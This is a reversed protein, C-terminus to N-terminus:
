CIEDQKLKIIKILNVVLRLRKPKVLDKEDRGCCERSLILM